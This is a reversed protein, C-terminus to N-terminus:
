HQCRPCFFTSRGAQVVRRVPQACRPCAEAERGYVAFSHSFYGPNGDVRTFDSITSGGSRIAEILIDRVSDTLLRLREKGIRGAARTPRIGARFLAECAYINGVGVVVHANMLLTKIPGKRGHCCNALYDADFTDGLPEPGLKAFWPHSKWGNSPMLGAYGFRRADRYSLTENESLIFRVHEHITLSEQSHIVHFKGTMGLHWVLLLDDFFFQLYKGRREVRECCRGALRSMDPLLYRLDPRFCQVSEIVRGSLHPALGRRVTEVEPLEPM